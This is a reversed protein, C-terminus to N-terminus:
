LKRADFDSALYMAIKAYLLSDVDRARGLRHRNCLWCCAGRVRSSRHCHEVHLRKGPAPPKGCIACVGGQLEVMKDFQEITIGYKRKLRVAREGQPHTERWRKNRAKPGEPRIAYRRADAAKRCVACEQRGRRPAAYPHGKRCHTRKM